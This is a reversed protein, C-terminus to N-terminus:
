VEVNNILKVLYRLENISNIDLKEVYYKSSELNKNIKGIIFLQDTNCAELITTDIKELTALKCVFNDSCDTNYIFSDAQFSNGVLGSNVSKQYKHLSLIANQTADENELIFIPQKHLPKKRFYKCLYEQIFPFLTSTNANIFKSSFVFTRVATNLSFLNGLSQRKSQLIKKRDLAILLWRTILVSKQNILAQIFDAKSIKREEISQKASLNAVISFANPYYLSEATERDDAISILKDIVNNKLEDFQYAKEYKFLKWFADIDVCLSLKSKYLSYYNLITEKEEKKKKEKNALNLISADNITFIRHFFNLQVDKNTTTRLFEKFSNADISDINETYHAYLIYKTIKGLAACENFHCLMELIPIAVTSISYKSDEHYKCQVAITTDPLLVDIDEIAGELVVTANDDASLIEYISKNFQYIYGKITSNAQRM